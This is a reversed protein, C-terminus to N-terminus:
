QAINYPCQRQGTAAPWLDLLGRPQWRWRSPARAFRCTARVGGALARSPRVWRATPPAEQSAAGGSENKAGKQLLLLLM